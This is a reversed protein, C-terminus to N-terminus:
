FQPGSPCNQMTSEQVVGLGVELAGVGALVLPLQVGRM